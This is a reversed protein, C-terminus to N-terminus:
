REKRFIMQAPFEFDPLAPAASVVDAGACITVNKTSTYVYIQETKPYIYWVVKVGSAFYDTLKDAIEEATESKSLIEIALTPIVKKGKAADFCQEATFFALDPVRFNNSMRLGVRGLLVGKNQSATTTQFFRILHWILMLQGGEIPPREFAAGRVFEHSGQQEFAWAEFAEVNKFRREISLRAFDSVVPLTTHM